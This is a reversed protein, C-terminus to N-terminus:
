IKALNALNFQQRGFFFDRQGPADAAPVPLGTFLHDRGVQPQHDLDGAVILPQPQRKQVQDVFAVDAQHFPHLAVVM